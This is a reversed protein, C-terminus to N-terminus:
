VTLPVRRRRGGSRDLRLAECSAPEAHHGCAMAAFMFFPLGLDILTGSISCAVLIGFAGARSAEQVIRVRSGSPASLRGFFVVALFAGYIATGLLGLNALLAVPFSSARVSGTGAGLGFTDVVNIFAQANLGAREVASTSSSKDFVIAQLIEVGATWMSRDLAAYMALALVSLPAFVVFLLDNLSRARGLLAALAQAYAAALVVVLGLYATTSTSLLLLVVDIASLALTLGPYIGGRWLRLTFGLAGLTAGAFAAAETFSGSIRKFGVEVENLHLTYNGNHIFELLYGTNTWFTALDVLAFMINCISYLIFAQMLVRFRASDRLFVVTTLYVAVSGIMYLSQTMNGSSPGLPVPSWSMEYATTGIPSVLTVSQFLRPFFIGTAVCYVSLGIVWSGVRPFKLYNRLSAVAGPERFVLGILFALLLHSPTVGIGGAKFAAASLLLSACVFMIFMTEISLWCMLGAYVLTLIGILDIEM